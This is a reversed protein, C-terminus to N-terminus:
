FREYVKVRPPQGAAVCVRGAAHASTWRFGRSGRGCLAGRHRRVQAPAYGVKALAAEARAAYAASTNRDWADAAALLAAIAAVIGLVEGRTTRRVPIPPPRASTLDGVPDRRM